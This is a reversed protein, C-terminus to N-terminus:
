KLMEAIAKLEKRIGDLAPSPDEPFLSAQVKKLRTPKAAPVVPEVKGRTELFKRAGEITFRKEYLLRKIELVLEVDKRRFLRHGTGSKKPGLGPFETEWFRLVYPKIGALKAVEGIRFYLKDPIEQAPAFGEVMGAAIDERINM